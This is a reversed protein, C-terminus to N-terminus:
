ALRSRPRDVAWTSDAGEWHSSSSSSSSSAAAATAASSSSSHSLSWPRPAHDVVPVVLVLNGSFHNASHETSGYRERKAFCSTEKARLWPRGDVGVEKLVCSLSKVVAQGEGDAASSCQDASWKGSVGQMVTCPWKEGSFGARLRHGGPEIVVNSCQRARRRAVLYSCYANDGKGGTSSPFCSISGMGGASLEAEGLKSWAHGHDESLCVHRLVQSSSSLSQLSASAPFFYESIRGIVDEPLASLNASGGGGM